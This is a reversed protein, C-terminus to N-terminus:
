NGVKKIALIHEKLAAYEIPTAITKLRKLSITKQTPLQQDLESTPVVYFEWQEM